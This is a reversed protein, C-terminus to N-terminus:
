LNNVFDVAGRTTNMFLEISPGISGIFARVFYMTFTYFSYWGEKTYRALVGFAKSVPVYIRYVGESVVKMFYSFVDVIATSVATMIEFIVVLGYYVSIAIEMLLISFYYLGMAEIRLTTHFTPLPDIVRIVWICANIVYPYVFLISNYILLLLPRPDLYPIVNSIFTIGDSVLTYITTGVTFSVQISFDKLSQLAPRIDPLSPPTIKVEPISVEPLTIKPLSIKPISVTIHPITM